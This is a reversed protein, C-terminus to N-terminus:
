VKSPTYSIDICKFIAIKKKVISYRYEFASYRNNINRGGRWLFLSIGRSGAPAGTQPLKCALRSSLVTCQYPPWEDPKLRVTRKKLARDPTRLLMLGSAYKDEKKLCGRQDYTRGGTMPGRHTVIARVGGGTKPGRHIVIACVGGGGQRDYTRPTNSNRARHTPPQDIGEPESDSQPEPPEFMYPQCFFLLVALQLMWITSTVTM